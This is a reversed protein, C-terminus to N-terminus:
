PAPRGSVSGGSRISDPAAQKPKGVVRASRCTAGASEDFEPKMLAMLADNM